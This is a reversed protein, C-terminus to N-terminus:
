FVRALIMKIESGGRFILSRGMLVVIVQAALNKWMDSSKPPALKTSAGNQAMWTTNLIKFTVERLM